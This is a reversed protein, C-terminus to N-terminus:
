AYLGAIYFHSILSASMTADCDDQSICDWLAKENLSFWLKAVDQADFLRSALNHEQAYRVDRAISSEFFHRAQQWKKAIITSCGIAEHVVRLMEKQRLGEEIFLTAQKEIIAIAEEKSRPTFQMSGVQQLGLITEEIIVYFLDDKNKFYVYATGYGVGAEKIVQTMTANAFGNKLFIVRGARILKNRTEISREQKM